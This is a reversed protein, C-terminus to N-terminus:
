GVVVACAAQGPATCLLSLPHLPLVCKKNPTRSRPLTPALQQAPQTVTACFTFRTNTAKRVNLVISGVPRTNTQSSRRNDPRHRQRQQVATRKPTPHHAGAQQGVRLCHNHPRLLVCLCCPVISHRRGKSDLNPTTPNRRRPLKTTSSEEKRDKEINQGKKPGKLPMEGDWKASAAWSHSLTQGCGAERAGM